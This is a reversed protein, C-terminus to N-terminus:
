SLHNEVLKIAQAASVGDYLVSYVMSMIAFDTLDFRAHLGKVAFYGEAVSNMENRAEASSYGRGVLLGLARNRSHPSYCTVLLDGLYASRNIDRNEMPFHRRLFADAERSAASVLVSLFNDGYGTGLAMGCAIAMVNKLIAAFEIGRLDVSPSCSIYGCSFLHTLHESPHQSLGGMTLYSRKEQAVEESHCPGGIMFLRDPSVRGKGQLWETVTIHQDPILGKAASIIPGSFTHLPLASLTSEAHAAPVAIVMQEAEQPLQSLSHYTQIRQRDLLIDSLYAPNRGTQAIAQAVEPRRIYWHLVLEPDCLLVKALATGWSGSGVLFVTKM